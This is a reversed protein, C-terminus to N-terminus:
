QRRAPNGESSAPFFTNFSRMDSRSPAMIPAITAATTAAIPSVPPTAITTITTTQRIMPNIMAKNQGSSVMRSHIAFSIFLVICEETKWSIALVENTYFSIDM